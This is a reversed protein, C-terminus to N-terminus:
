WPHARGHVVWVCRCPAVRAVARRLAELAHRAFADPVLPVAVVVATAASVFAALTRAVADPEDCLVVTITHV